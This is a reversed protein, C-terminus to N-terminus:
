AVMGVQWVVQCQFTIFSLFCVQTQDWKLDPHLMFGVEPDTDEFLLRDVEKKKELIKYVWAAAAAPLAEIHPRTVDKYM